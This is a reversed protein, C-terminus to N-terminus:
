PMEKIYIDQKTYPIEIENLQFKKYITTLLEDTMRGRLMPKDVWCLLEFDLSSAGFARFRVRAEPFHCVGQHSAAVGMLIERVHDVDSGYAVGLTIRIRYKEYPGGSENVVKTNGMISNPITLEVDDRTLLRTSRIGIDTVEGREGSDLVIFDGIKYPADSLIFIGSIFNNLTDKSAFGIAVGVVGASALWATMDIGWNQFIMYVSIVIIVTVVLNEFLPLTQISIIKLKSDDNSVLELIIKSLRVFFITLIILNITEFFSDFNGKIVDSVPLLLTAMSLGVMLITYFIPAQIIRSLRRKFTGQNPAVFRELLHALTGTLLYAVALSLFIVTLSQLYPMGDFVNSFLALFDKFYNM